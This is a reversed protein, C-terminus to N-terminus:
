AAAETITTDAFGTLQDLRHDSFAPKSCGSLTAACALAVLVSLAKKSAQYILAERKPTPQQLQTSSTVQTTQTVIM